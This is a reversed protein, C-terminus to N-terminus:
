GSVTAALSAVGAKWEPFLEENESWLECLESEEACVRLCAQAAMPRLPSFDLTSLGERWQTWEEQEDEELERGSLAARIAAASVLVAHGMDYDVYEAALAAEFAEKMVARPDRQPILQEEIFDLATDDELIGAGWAGMGWRRDPQTNAGPRPPEPEFANDALPRRLFDAVSDRSGAPSGEGHRPGVVHWAPGNTGRRVQDVSGVPVRVAPGRPLKVKFCPMDLERTSESGDPRLVVFDCAVDTMGSDADVLPNALFTLVFLEGGPGVERATTFHPITEPPTDWKQQWDQDATVLVTASFGERSKASDSEPVPNGQMDIWGDDAMSAAPFALLLPLLLPALKM